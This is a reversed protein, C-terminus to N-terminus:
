NLIKLYYKIKIIWTNAELAKFSQPCGVIQLKDDFNVIFWDSHSFQKIEKKTIEKVSSKIRNEALKIKAVEDFYIFFKIKKPILNLLTIFKTNKSWYDLNDVYFTVTKSDELCLKFLSEFENELLVRNSYVKDLILDYYSSRNKKNTVYKKILIKLEEMDEFQGNPITFDKVVYKTFIKKLLKHNRIQELVESKISDLLNSLKNDPTILDLDTGTESVYILIPIRQFFVSIDEVEDISVLEDPIHNSDSGYIENEKNFIEKIIGVRNRYFEIDNGEFTHHIKCDDDINREITNSIKDRSIDQNLANVYINRITDTEKKSSMLSKLVNRGEAMLYCKNSSPYALSKIYLDGITIDLIDRNLGLIGSIEELDNVGCNTIRLVMEEILNLRAQKRKTISLTVRYIPIYINEAKIYTYGKNEPIFDNFVNEIYKNM